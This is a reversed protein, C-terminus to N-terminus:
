GIRWNIGDDYVPVRQAGGGVVISAFTTATADTVIFRRGPTGATPLTAVTASGGVAMRALGAFFDYWDADVVGSDPDSIAVDVHPIPNGADAV